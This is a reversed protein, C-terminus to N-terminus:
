NISVYGIINSSLNRFLLFTQRIVFAFPCCGNAQQQKHFALDCVVSTRIWFFTDAKLITDEYLISECVEIFMMLEVYHNNIFCAYPSAFFFNPNTDGNRKIKILRM